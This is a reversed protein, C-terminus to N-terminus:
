VRQLTSGGRLAAGCRACANWWADCACSRVLAWLWVRYMLRHEEMGTFALVPM